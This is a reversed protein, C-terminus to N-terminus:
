LHYFLAPIIRPFFLLAGGALGALVWDFWHIRVPQHSLKELMQPWLDRRLEGNKVPGLAQKLLQKMEKDIYDNSM